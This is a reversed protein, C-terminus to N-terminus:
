IGDPGSWKCPLPGSGATAVGTMDRWSDPGFIVEGGNHNSFPQDVSLLVRRSAADVRGDAFAYEVVQTDGARDTYDVYLRSGDPSFVLGLLGQEGGNSIESSLDLLAAADASGGGSQGNPVRRVRGRKEAVYLTDDDPRVALAIPGSLGDIEELRLAVAGLDPGGEGTVALGSPDPAPALSTTTNAPATSDTTDSGCAGAVLTVALALATATALRSAPRRVNM